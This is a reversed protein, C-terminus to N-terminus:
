GNTSSSRTGPRPCGSVMQQALSQDPEVHRKYSLFVRATRAQTSKDVAQM